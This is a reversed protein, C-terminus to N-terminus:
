DQEVIAKERKGNLRSPDKERRLSAALILLVGLLEVGHVHPVYIFGARLLVFLMIVLVGSLATKSQKLATRSIRFLFVLIAIMLIMLFLFVLFYIHYRYARLGLHNACFRGVLIILIQIDLQKNIGMVAIFFTIFAWLTHLPRNGAQKRTYRLSFIFTVLYAFTIIWSWFTDDGALSLWRGLIYQIRDSM